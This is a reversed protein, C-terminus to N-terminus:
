CCRGGDRGDDLGHAAYSVALRAPQAPTKRGAEHATAGIRRRGVVGQALAFALHQVQQGLAERILFDALLEEDGLARDFLVDVGKKFLEAQAGAGLGDGPGPLM